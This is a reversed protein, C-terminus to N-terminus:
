ARLVEINIVANIQNAQVYLNLLPVSNRGPTSRFYGAGIALDAGQCTGNALTTADGTYVISGAASSNSNQVSLLECTKLGSLATGAPPVAPTVTVGAQQAPPLTGTLLQYINFPGLVVSLIKVTIHM